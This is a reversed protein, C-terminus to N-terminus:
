ARKVPLSLAISTLQQSLRRLLTEAPEDRPDQNILRGEFAAKLISQHLANRQQSNEACTAADKIQEICGTYVRAIEDQEASPPLPVAVVNLVERTINKQATAPAFAELRAQVNQMWLHIYFANIGHAPV